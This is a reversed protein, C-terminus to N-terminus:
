RVLGISTLVNALETSANMVAPHAAAGIVGAERGDAPRHDPALPARPQPAVAAVHGEELPPRETFLRVPPVRHGAEAVRPGAQQHDPERRRRM